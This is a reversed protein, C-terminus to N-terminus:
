RASEELVREVMDTLTITSPVKGIVSAAIRGEADLVFTSPISRPPIAFPLLAQGDPSYVSGYPVDFKRVYALAQEASSDRINVGVFAAQDGLEAAAENLDPQEVRCPPCASWWINVVVPKGRLDALDFPKGELDEGTLEVPEARDAPVIETPM